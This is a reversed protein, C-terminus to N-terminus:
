RTPEPARGQPMPGRLQEAMQQHQQLTPLLSTELKCVDQDKCSQTWSNVLSIVKHHGMSMANAFERDFQAGKLNTFRDKEMQKHQQKQADQMTDTLTFGKKKALDMVQKDAAKHDRQLTQAFSKVKESGNQEALKGLEIEHLNTLHLKQLQMQPTANQLMADHDADTAMKERNRYNPDDPNGREAADISQTSATGAPKASPNDPHHPNGKDAQDVQQNTSSTSVDSGAKNKAKTSHPNDPNDTAQQQAWASGAALLAALCISRIFSTM